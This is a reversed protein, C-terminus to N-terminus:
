DESPRVGNVEMTALAEGKDLPSITIKDKEIDVKVWVKGDLQWGYLRAWMKPVAAYLARSVQYLSKGGLSEMIAKRKGAPAEESQKIDERVV